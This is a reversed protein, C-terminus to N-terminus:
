LSRHTWRGNLLTGIVEIGRLKVPDLTGPDSATIMLDAADGPRVGDRGRSAAALAVPLPIAQEPHWAERDDDTRTVASAM